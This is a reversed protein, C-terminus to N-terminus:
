DETTRIISIPAKQERRDQRDAESECGCCEVIQDLRYTRTRVLSNERGSARKGKPRKGAALEAAVAPKLGAQLALPYHAYWEYDADWARATILIAFENLRRPVSSHFRLQEGVRQLRDATEPSRLWANFPGGLSKRPGWTIADAVTKQAPTMTEATLQPFREQAEARGATIAMALVGGMWWRM